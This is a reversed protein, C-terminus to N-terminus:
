FNVFLRYGWRLESQAHWQSKSFDINITQISPPPGNVIIVVIREDIKTKISETEIAFIFLADLYKKLLTRFHHILQLFKKLIDILDVLRVCLAWITLKNFGALIKDPHAIINAFFSFSMSLTIWPYSAQHQTHLGIWEKQWVWPANIIIKIKSQVVCHPCFM